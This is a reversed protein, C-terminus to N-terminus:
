ATPLAGFISKSFGVALTMGKPDEEMYIRIPRQHFCHVTLVYICKLRIPVLVLSQTLISKPNGM